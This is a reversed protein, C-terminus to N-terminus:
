CENGNVDTVKLEIEYIGATTWSHLPAREFSYTEDGFSWFSAYDEINGDQLNIESIFQVQEDEFVETPITGIAIYPYDDDTNSQISSTEPDHANLIVIGHSYTDMAGNDDIVTLSITYSGPFPYAHFCYKGWSATNDGWNWLYRLTNKDSETDSCYEASFKIESRAKRDMDLTLPFFAEPPKNKVEISTTKKSITGQSDIIGITLPYIGENKWKHKISSEESTIQSDGFDYFYTFNELEKRIGRNLEFIDEVSIMVEEDEFVQLSPYISINFQLIDNQITLECSKSYERGLHDWIQLIPFYKGQLLYSHNLIKFHTGKEQDFHNLITEVNGDGWNIVAQPVFGIIEWKFTIPYGTRFTDNEEDLSFEVIEYDLSFEVIEYNFDPNPNSVFYSILIIIIIAYAGVTIKNIPLKKLFQRIRDFNM